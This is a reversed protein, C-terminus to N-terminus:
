ETCEPWGGTWSGGERSGESSGRARRLPGASRGGSSPAPLGPSHLESAERASTVARSPHSRSLPSGPYETPESSNDLGRRLRPGPHRSSQLSPPSVSKPFGRGGWGVGRSRSAPFGPTDRTGPGPGATHRPTRGSGRAQLAQRRSEYGPRGKSEQSSAPGPSWSPRPWPAVTHASSAAASPGPGPTQFGCHSGPAHACGLAHPSAQGRWNRRGRRPSDWSRAGPAESPVRSSKPGEGCKEPSSTLAITPPLAERGM